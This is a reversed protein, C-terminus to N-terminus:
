RGTLRTRYGTEDEVYIVAGQPVRKRQRRIAEAFDEPAVDYQAARGDITLDYVKQGDVKKFVVAM